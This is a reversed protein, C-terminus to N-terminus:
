ASDMWISMDRVMRVSFILFSTGRAIQSPRRRSRMAPPCAAGKVISALPPINEYSVPLPQRFAASDQDGLV